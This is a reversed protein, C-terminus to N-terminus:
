SEPSPPRTFGSNRRDTGRRSQRTEVPEGGCDIKRPKPESRELERLETRKESRTSSGSPIARENDM